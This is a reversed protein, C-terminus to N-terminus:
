IVMCSGDAVCRSYLALEGDPSLLGWTVIDLTSDWQITVTRDDGDVGDDQVNTVYPNLWVLSLFEEGTHDLTLGVMWDLLDSDIEFSGSQGRVQVSSGDQIASPAVPDAEGGEVYNWQLAAIGDWAAWDDMDGDCTDISATGWDDRDSITGYMDDQGLGEEPDFSHDWVRFVWNWVDYGDEDEWTLAGGQRIAFGDEDEAEDNDFPDVADDDTNDDGFITVCKIFTHYMDFEVDETISESGFEYMVGEVIDPHHTPNQAEAMLPIHLYDTGDDDSQDPNDYHFPTGDGTWLWGGFVAEDNWDGFEHYLNHFYLEVNDETAVNFWYTGGGEYFTEAPLGVTAMILGPDNYDDVIFEEDAHAAAAAVHDTPLNGSTVCNGARDCFTAGVNWYHPTVNGLDPIWYDASTDTIGEDDCVDGDSDVSITPIDTDGRCVEQVAGGPTPITENNSGLDFDEAVSGDSLWWRHNVGGAQGSHGNGNDTAEWEFVGTAAAFLDDPGGDFPNYRSVDFPHQELIIVPAKSDIGINQVQDETDQSGDNDGCGFGTDSDDDCNVYAVNAFRDMISAWLDIDDDQNTNLGDLDDVYQNTEAPFDAGVEVICSAAGTGGCGTPDPDDVVAPTGAAAGPEIYFPAGEDGLAAYFTISSEESGFPIDGDDGCGDDYGDLGCFLDGDFMDGSNIWQGNGIATYRLLGDDTSPSDGAWDLQRPHWPMSWVWSMPSWLDVRLIANDPSGSQLNDGLFIGVLDGENLFPQGFVTVSFLDIDFIQECWIQGWLNDTEANDTGEVLPFHFAGTDPDKEIDEWAFFGGEYWDGDCYFEFDVLEPSPAPKNDSITRIQDWLFFEISGSWWRLGEEDWDTHLDDYGSFCDDLSYDSNYVCREDNVVDMSMLWTDVNQLIILQSAFVTAPPPGNGVQGAAASAADTYGVARVTNPGNLFMASYPRQPDAADLYVVPSVGLSDRYAETNVHCDIEFEEEVNAPDGAGAVASENLDQSCVLISYDYEDGEFDADFYVEVRNVNQGGEDVGVVVNIEGFVNERNVPVQGGLIDNRTIREIAISAHVPYIEGTFISGLNNQGAVLTVQKSTITFNYTTADWGSISITYTGVELDFFDFFGQADTTTTYTASAALAAGAAASPGELTVTVGSVPSGSATVSGRVAAREIRTGAFNVIESEGPLLNVEADVDSFIINDPDPNGAITVTYSGSRLGTFSYNGAADTEKTQDDEPGDITMTVGAVGVGGASVQGSISATRVVSGSFAATATQGDTNISVPQSTTGFVYDPPISSITVSYNGEIVNSFTVSGSASTVESQSSAGALTVTVGAVGSGEATVSVSVTGVAPTEEQVPTEGEDCAAFAALAALALYQLRKM